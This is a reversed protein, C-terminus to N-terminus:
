APFTVVARGELRGEELLRIAEHLDGLAFENIEIRSVGSEALRVVRELDRMSGGRSSLVVVGPRVLTRSFPLVGGGRGCVVVAACERAIRVAAHLTDHSGVFDVVADVGRGGTIGVIRDEWGADSELVLDAGLDGAARLRQESRDVAIVRANTLAKAYQVAFAGLGGIGIVVITESRDAYRVANSVAHYASLGADALPAAHKPELSELTVLQRRDAIMYGAFGGDETLGRSGFSTCHNEQGAACYECTGCFQIASVVVAQGLELDEVGPGLGAVWGANEHGLTFPKTFPRTEMSGHVVELDTRCLGAGGIKLLVQHPGPTPTPMSVLQPACGARLVRYAMM